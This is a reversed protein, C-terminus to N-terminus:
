LNNLERIDYKQIGFYLGFCLREIEFEYSHLNIDIAPLLAWFRVDFDVDVKFTRRNMNFNNNNTLCVRQNIEM